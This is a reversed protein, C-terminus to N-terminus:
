VKPKNVLGGVDVVWPRTVFGRSEAAVERKETSFEYLNNYNTIDELPTPKENVTLWVKALDDAPKATVTEIKQGKPLEAPPPDTEPLSLRPQPQRPWRREM